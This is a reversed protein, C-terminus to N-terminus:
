AFVGTMVQGKQLYKFRLLLGGVFLLSKCLPICQDFFDTWLGTTEVVTWPNNTTARVFQVV